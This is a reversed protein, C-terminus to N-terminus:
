SEPSLLADVATQQASLSVTAALCSLDWPPPLFAQRPSQNRQPIPVPGCGGFGCTIQYLRVKKDALRAVLKRALSLLSSPVEPPTCGQWKEKYPWIEGDQERSAPM